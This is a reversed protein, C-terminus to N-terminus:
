YSNGEECSIKCERYLDSVSGKRVIFGVIEICSLLQEKRVIFRVCEM